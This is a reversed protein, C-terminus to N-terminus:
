RGDVRNDSLANTKFTLWGSQGGSMQHAYLVNVILFGLYPLVMGPIAVMFGFFGGYLMLGLCNKLEGMCVGMLLTNLCGIMVTAIITVGVAVVTAALLNLVTRSGCELRSTLSYCFLAGCIVAPMSILLTRLSMAICPILWVINISAGLIASSRRSLGMYRNQKQQQIPGLTSLCSGCHKEDDICLSCYFDGCRCCCRIPPNATHRECCAPTLLAKEIMIGM